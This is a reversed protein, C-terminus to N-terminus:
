VWTRAGAATVVRAAAALGARLAPEPADGWLRRALFTGTFADGAGTTDEVAVREAPSHLLEAGPGSYLVGDGGLTLAVERYHRRLGALVEPPERKGTLVRGEEINACCWDLGETWGFFAGAGVAALPGASSPDVSRTMGAAAALELAELAAPRTVEDLLEYGSLHLHRGGGFLERPLARHGLRLNAGRDTFMSREGSPDIMAVVVGTREEPLAELHAQVNNAALARTAARGLEDDGVVAVLHVEAGARAFAVAQNTASGGPTAVIRSTTDSGPNFPGTARVVIDVMVDGVVVVIPAGPVVPAAGSPAVAGPTAM